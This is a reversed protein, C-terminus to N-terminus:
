SKNKKLNDIKDELVNIHKQSIEYNKQLSYYSNLWTHLEENLM